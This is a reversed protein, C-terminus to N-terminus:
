IGMQSYWAKLKEWEGPLDIARSSACVPFLDAASARRLRLLGACRGPGFAIWL